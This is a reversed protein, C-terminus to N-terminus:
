ISTTTEWSFNSHTTVSFQLLWIYGVFLFLLFSCSDIFHSSIADDPWPNINVDIIKHFWHLTPLPKQNTTIWHGRYKNVSKNICAIVDTQNYICEHFDQGFRLNSWYIPFKLGDNCNDNANYKVSLKMFIAVCMYYTYCLVTVNRM